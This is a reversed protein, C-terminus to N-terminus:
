ASSGRNLKVGGRSKLSVPAMATFHVGGQDREGYIFM